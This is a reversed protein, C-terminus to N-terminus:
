TRVLQLRRHAAMETDLGTSCPSSCVAAPITSSRCGCAQHHLTTVGRGSLGPLHAQRGPRCRLPARNRALTETQFSGVEDTASWSVGARIGRRNRSPTRPKSTM